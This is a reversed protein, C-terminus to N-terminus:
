ATGQSVLVAAYVGITTKDNPVFNTNITAATSIFTACGFSRPYTLVAHCQLYKPLPFVQNRYNCRGSGPSQVLWLGLFRLTGKQPHFAYCGLFVPWRQDPSCQLGRIFNLFPQSILCTNFPSGAMALGVAM